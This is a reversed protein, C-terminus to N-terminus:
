QKDGSHQKLWISLTHKASDFALDAKEIDEETRIPLWSVESVEKADPNFNFHEPLKATFFLDCTKYTIGRYEYTNPFSCLYTVAEPEVGTEERCERVAAQEATEDPNTFGGPLAHFGKRPEKARKEFLVEHRSNAIVLGVASAVNNYLDFDCDPCQWKRGGKHTEINKSGCQPCYSFKNDTM